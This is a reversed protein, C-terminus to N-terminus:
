PTSRRTPGFCFSVANGKNQGAPRRADSSHSRGEKWLFQSLTKKTFESLYPNEILEM